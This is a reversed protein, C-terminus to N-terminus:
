LNSNKERFNKMASDMYLRLQKYIEQNISNIQPKVKIELGLYDRIVSLEDNNFYELKELAKEYNYDTQRIIIQIKEQIEQQLKQTNEKNIEKKSEEITEKNNLISM